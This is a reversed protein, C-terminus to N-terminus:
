YLTHWNNRASFISKEVILIYIKHTFNVDQGVPIFNKHFKNYFDSM